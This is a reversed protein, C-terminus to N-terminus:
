LDHRRWRVHAAIWSRVRLPKVRLRRSVLRIARDASRGHGISRLVDGITRQIRSPVEPRIEFSVLSPPGSLWERWQHRDVQHGLREHRTPWREERERMRRYAEFEFPYVTQTRPERWGRSAVVTGRPGRRGLREALMAGVMLTM